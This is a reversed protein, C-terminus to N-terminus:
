RLLMLSKISIMHASLLLGGDMGVCLHHGDPSAGLSSVNDRVDINYVVENNEKQRIEVSLALHGGIAYYTDNIFTLARPRFDLDVETTGASTYIHLKMSATSCVYLEIDEEM